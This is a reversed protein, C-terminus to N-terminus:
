ALLRQLRQEVSGRIKSIFYDLNFSLHIHIYPTFTIQNNNTYQISNEEDFQLSVHIKITM